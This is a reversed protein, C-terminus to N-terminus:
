RDIEPIVLDLSGGIAVLDSLLVGAALESLLSLNSYSPPRIKLRYPKDTGDGVLYYDLQGRAAEVAQVTDGPGVKLKKPVKAMVPGDPLKALAQEVIRLSQEMEVM